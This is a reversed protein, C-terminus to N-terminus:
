GTHRLPADMSRLKAIAGTRSHVGFQKFITSLHVKVTAESIGLKYAISKNAEGSAVLKLVEQQRSTLDHSLALPSKLRPTFVHTPIETPVFVRGSLVVSVAMHLESKRDSKHFFGHAGAGLFGFIYERDVHDSMVVVAMSPNQSKLWDLDEFPSGALFESCVFLLRFGETSKLCNFLSDRSYVAHVLDIRPHQSLAAELGAAFLQNGDAVLVYSSPNGM